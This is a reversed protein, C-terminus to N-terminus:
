CFIFESIMFFYRPPVQVYHPSIGVLINFYSRPSPLSTSHYQALHKSLHTYFSGPNSILKSNYHLKELEYNEVKYVIFIVDTLQFLLFHSQCSMSCNFIHQYHNSYYESHCHNSCNDYPCEYETLWSTCKNDVPALPTKNDM